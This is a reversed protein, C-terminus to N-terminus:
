LEGCEPLFPCVLNKELCFQFFTLQNLRAKKLLLDRKEEDIQNSLRIPLSSDHAEGLHLLTSCTKNAAVYYISEQTLTEFNCYNIIKAGSSQLIHNMMLIFFVEM